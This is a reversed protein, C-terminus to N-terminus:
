MTKRLADFVQDSYGFISQSDRMSQRPTVRAYVNGDNRRELTVEAAELLGCHHGGRVGVLQEQYAGVGTAVIFNKTGVNPVVIRKDDQFRQPYRGDSDCTLDGLIVEKAPNDINNVPFFNFSKQAVLMDPTAEMLSGDLLYWSTTNGREDSGNTKEQVVDFAYFGAEAVTYSGLEFVVVPEPVGSDEAKKKLDSLFIRLFKEHDYNETLPPIGGGINFYKLSPYKKALEFYNDAALSLHAAFAGEPITEAAGVMAHMMTLTLNQSADIKQATEEIQDRIMGFRSTLQSLEDDGSVKGFKMRIGVEMDVGQDIFYDVEGIDLIPSIRFGKKRVDVIKEAYVEDDDVRQGQIDEFIVHGKESETNSRMVDWRGDPPLKFGNCIVKTQAPDLLGAEYMKELDDIDQKSTTETNWGSRIAAHVAEASRNAKTAYFYEFGGTYGTEVAVSQTIDVWDKCRREIITTDFIKLPTGESDHGAVHSIADIVRLGNIWLNGEEDYKLYDWMRSDKFEEVVYERYSSERTAEGSLGEWTSGLGGEKESINM